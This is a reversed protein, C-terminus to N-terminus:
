GAASKSADLTAAHAELLEVVEAHSGNRAEDLPTAGWRDCVHLPHGQALLYRSANVQGESAALHLATRGDYDTGFAPVGRAFLRMMSGLLGESAAWLLEVVDVPDAQHSSVPSLRNGSGAPHKAQGEKAGTAELKEIVARHSGLRADDLPTGGWRDVADASVGRQLLFEVVDIHGEAAALHMPTRGDYDGGSLDFGEVDLRGLEGLDGSSAAWLAEATRTALWHARTVRPDLPALAPDPSPLSRRVHTSQQPRCSRTSGVRIHPRRRM